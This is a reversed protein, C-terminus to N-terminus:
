GTAYALDWWSCGVHYFRFIIIAVVSHKHAKPPYPLYMPTPDLFSFIIELSLESDYPLLSCHSTTCLVTKECQCYMPFIPINWRRKNCRRKFHPCCFTDEFLCGYFTETAKPLVPAHAEFSPGIHWSLNSKKDRGTSHSPLQFNTRIVHYGSYGIIRGARPSLCVPLITSKTACVGPGLRRPMECIPKKILSDILGQVWSSRVQCQCWVIVIAQLSCTFCCWFFFCFRVLGM